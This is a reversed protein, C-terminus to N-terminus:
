DRRCCDELCVTKAPYNPGRALRNNVALIQALFRANEEDRLRPGGTQEDEARKQGRAVAAWFPCTTSARGCPANNAGLSAALLMEPHRALCRSGIPRDKRTPRPPLPPSFACSPSNTHISHPRRVQPHVQTAYSHPQNHAALLASQMMSLSGGKPKRATLEATHQAGL